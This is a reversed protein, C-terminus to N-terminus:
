LSSCKLLHKNAWSSCAFKYGPTVNLSVEHIINIMISSHMYVGYKSQQGIIASTKGQNVVKDNNM